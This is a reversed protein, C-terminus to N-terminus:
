ESPKLQRVAPLAADDGAGARRLLDHFKEAQAPTLEARPEDM